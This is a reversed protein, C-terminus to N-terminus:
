PEAIKITTIEWGKERKQIIHWKNIEEVWVAGVRLPCIVLVKRIEFYDFLLYFLATLTIVTKGLGCDLFIAAQPHTLIFETTYKQYDHPRYKM